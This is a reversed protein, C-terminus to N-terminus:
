HIVSLSFRCTCSPLKRLYTALRRSSPLRAGPLGATCGPDRPLQPPAVAGAPRTQLCPECRSPSAPLLLARTRHLAGAAKPQPGPSAHGAATLHAPPSAHHPPTMPALPCHQLVHRVSAPNSLVSPLPSIHKDATRLARASPGDCAPRVGSTWLRLLSRLTRSSHGFNRLEGEEGGGGADGKRGECTDSDRM